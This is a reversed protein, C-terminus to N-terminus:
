KSEDTIVSTELSAVAKEDPLTWACEGTQPCHFFRRASATLAAPDEMERWRGRRSLEQLLSDGLHPASPCVRDFRDPTALYRLALSRWGAPALSRTCGMLHAIPGCDDTTRWLASTRQRWTWEAATCRRQRPLLVCADDRETSHDIGEFRILLSISRTWRAGCASCSSPTTSSRRSRPTLLRTVREDLCRTPRVEPDRPNMFLAWCFCSDEIAALASPLTSKSSEALAADAEQLLQQARAWTQKAPYRCSAILLVALCALAEADQPSAQVVHYHTWGVLRMVSPPPM